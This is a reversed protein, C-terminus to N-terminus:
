IISPFPEGISVCVSKAVGFVTTMSGLDPIVIETEFGTTVPPIAIGPAELLASGDELVMVEICCTTDVVDRGADETVELAKGDNDSAWFPVRRIDERGM